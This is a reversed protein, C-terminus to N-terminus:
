PGQQIAEQATTLPTDPRFAELWWTAGAAEYDRVPASATWSPIAVDFADDTTRHRRVESVLDSVAEPPLNGIPVVGDYRAARRLPTRHPWHAACWIPIR